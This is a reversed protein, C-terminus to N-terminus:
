SCSSKPNQFKTFLKSIVLQITSDHMYQKDNGENIWKENEGVFLDTVSKEVEVKELTELNHTCRTTPWKYNHALCDFHKILQIKM